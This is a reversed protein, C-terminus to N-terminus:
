CSRVTKKLEFTYVYSYAFSVNSSLCFNKLPAIQQDSDTPFRNLVVVVSLNFSRLNSIHKALNDLSHEEIARLTVVIVACAPQLDHLRCKIDLFKEAGLDAGFGAETVVYDALSLATKTAVVSNCGHAINAFPGGHIIAPTGELTQVLNPKFADKLLALMAGVVKLDKPTVPLNDYTYAIIMRSLRERLDHFNEALCFIAMIESAVSIDFHSERIVGNNGLGVLVNRLARDNMDVCRNICVSAPNINLLNGHYLHNDLAACLLNNASTIAHFDGTFHLNIEEAPIVKAKGGGIAGGKLGFCPGLSPERLALCVKKGLSGLADALGISTTTKGEGFKTPNMATVLILKGRPKNLPKIKGKYFGIPEVEVSLKSAIEEIKKM